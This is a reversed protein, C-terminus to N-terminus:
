GNTDISDLERKLNLRWTKGNRKELYKSSISDYTKIAKLTADDFSCGANLPYLGYKKYIAEKISHKKLDNKDKPLLLGFGFTRVSDKKIDSFAKNTYKKIENEEYKKSNYSNKLSDYIYLIIVAIFIFGFIKLLIRM